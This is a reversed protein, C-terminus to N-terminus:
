DNINERPQITLLLASKEVASSERVHIRDIVGDVDSKLENEMKMAELIVLGQGNSISMGESVLLKLVRGPMPSHLERKGTQSATIKLLTSLDYLRKDQISIPYGRSNICVIFSQVGSKSLSSISPNIREVRVVSGDVMLMGERRSYHRFIYNMERGQVTATSGDHLEVNFSQRDIEVVFHRSM